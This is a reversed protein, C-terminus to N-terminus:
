GRPGYYGIKHRVRLDERATRVVIRRWRGDRRQNGSVYGLTYQSRLEAGIRDYVGDVESVSRPFFSQGGTDESGSSNRFGGGRLNPRGRVYSQGRRASM